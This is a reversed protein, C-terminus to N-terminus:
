RDLAVELRVGPRQTVEAGLCDLDAGGLAQLVDVPQDNGATLARRDDLADSRRAQLRRQPSVMFVPPRDEAGAGPQDDAVGLVEAEEVGTGAAVGETALQLAELGVELDLPDAVLWQAGDEDAGGPDLAV